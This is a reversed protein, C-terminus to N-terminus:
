ISKYREYDTDTALGTRVFQYHATFDIIHGNYENWYHPIEKLEDVIGHENAFQARDNLSNFDFGLDEMQQREDPTFDRKKYLPTDVRFTGYVREVGDFGLSDAYVKFDAATVGCNDRTRGYEISDRNNIKFQQIIDSLKLKDESEVIIDTIKM